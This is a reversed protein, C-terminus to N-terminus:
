AYYIIYLVIKKIYLTFMYIFECYKEVVLGRVPWHFKKIHSIHASKPYVSVGVHCNQRTTVETFALLYDLYGDIEVEQM